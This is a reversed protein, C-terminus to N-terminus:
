FPINEGSDDFPNAAVAALAPADPNADFGGDDFGGGGGGSYEVLEWVQTAVLDCTIGITPKCYGRLRIICRLLSGNGVLPIDQYAQSQPNRVQPNNDWIEGTKKSSGKAWQKFKFEYSDIM